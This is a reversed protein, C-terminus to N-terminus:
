LQFEFGSLGIFGVVSGYVVAFVSLGALCCLGVCCVVWVLCVVCVSLCAFGFWTLYDFDWLVYFM